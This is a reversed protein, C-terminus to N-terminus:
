RLGQEMLEFFREIDVDLIINANAKRGSRDLWDVTTQGRTYRGNLEVTVYHKEAKKVISPELAVALALPDAAYLTTQGINKLYARFKVTIATFFQAKKSEIEAWEDLLEPPFGHRMTSEWDVLDFEPWAEFVIHAAEADAFVNFEASLNSTNGLSRVAGGMVLLRKFKQPLHPDLKLAVAVNTLPGITVLTIEGPSENALRVLALAAHEAEVQRSSPAFGVDGLGDNGHAFAADESFLVLPGNCGAYIPIDQGLLDLITCANATTYELGVNGAVTTIAEIKVGAYACAMMIAQADDVGPDTDIIFREM